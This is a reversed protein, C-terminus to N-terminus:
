PAHRPHLGRGWNSSPMAVVADFIARRQAVEAARQAMFQWIDEPSMRTDYRPPRVHSKGVGFPRETVPGHSGARDQALTALENFAPAPGNARVQGFYNLYRGLSRGYAM